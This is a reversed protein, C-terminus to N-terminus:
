KDATPVVALYKAGHKVRAEKEWLFLFAALKISVAKYESVGFRLRVRHRHM